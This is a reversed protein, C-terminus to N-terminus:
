LATKTLRALKEHDVTDQETEVNESKVEAPASVQRLPDEPATQSAAKRQDSRLKREVLKDHFHERAVIRLGDTLTEPMSAVAHRFMATSVLFEEPAGIAALEGGSLVAIRDCVDAADAFVDTSLIVTKGSRASDLFLDKMECRAASNLGAFPEDFVLLETKAALASRLATNRDGPANHRGIITSSLKAFKSVRATETTTEALYAIRARVSKRFPSRGLVEVKGNTPRLRGGLIKLATTKGSGQPGLLGFIEGRAISLNIQKLPVHFASVYFSVDRM